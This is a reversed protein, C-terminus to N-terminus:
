LYITLHKGDILKRCSYKELVAVLNKIRINKQFTLSINQGYSTPPSDVKEERLDPCAKSWPLPNQIVEFVLHYQKSRARKQISAQEQLGGYESFTWTVSLPCACAGALLGLQPGSSLGADVVLCIFPSAKTMVGTRAVM